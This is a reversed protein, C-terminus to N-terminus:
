VEAGGKGKGKIKKAKQQLEKFYDSDTIEAVQKERKVQDIEIRLEHIERRLKQEQNYKELAASALSSFSEMLQQLNSDFPVISKRKSDLANLLQLVGQVEGQSDKLPITLISRTTYGTQKDFELAGSFDFEDDKYADEINITKGTWAAHAAVHKHNAQGSSDLLPIPPLTVDQGSTGGMAIKQTDNRIVAFELQNDKKLYLTGGDANCFAKAEMLMTELLKQYDKESSLKIGIPIVIDLLGDARNKQLNLQAMIRRLQGAIFLSLLTMGSIGFILIITNGFIAYTYLYLLAYLGYYGTVIALGGILILPRRERNQFYFQAIWLGTFASITTYSPGQLFLQEVLNNPLISASGIVVGVAYAAFGMGTSWGYIPLDILANSLTQFSAFFSSTPCVQLIVLDM